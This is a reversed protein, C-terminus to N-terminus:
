YKKKKKVKLKPTEIQMNKLESMEGKAMDVRNFAELANKM